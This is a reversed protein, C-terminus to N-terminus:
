GAKDTEGIARDGPAPHPPEHEGQEHERLFVGVYALLDHKVTQEMANLGLQPQRRLAALGLQQLLEVADAGPAFGGSGIRHHFRRNRTWVLPESTSRCLHRSARFVCHAPKRLSQAKLSSSFVSTTLTQM